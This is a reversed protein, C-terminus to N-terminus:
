EEFTRRQAIYTSILSAHQISTLESVIQRIKFDYPKSLPITAFFGNKDDLRLAQRKYNEFLCRLHVM